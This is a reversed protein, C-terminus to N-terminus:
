SGDAATMELPADIRPRNVHECRGSHCLFRESGTQKSQAGLEIRDATHWASPMQSRAEFSGLGHSDTQHRQDELAGIVLYYLRIRM